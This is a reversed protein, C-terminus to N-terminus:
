VTGTELEYYTGNTKDEFGGDEVLNVPTSAETEAHVTLANSPLMGAVLVLVLVISLIRQQLKKYGNM